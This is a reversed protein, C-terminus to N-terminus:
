KCFTDVIKFCRTRISNQLFYLGPFIRGAGAPQFYFLSLFPAVLVPFFGNEGDGHSETGTAREVMASFSETMSSSRAFSAANSFLYDRM